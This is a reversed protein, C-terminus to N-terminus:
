EKLAARIGAAYTLCAGLVTTAFGFSLRNFGAICSGPIVFGYAIVVTPVAFMVLPLWLRVLRRRRQAAPCSPGPIPCSSPRILVRLRNVLANM